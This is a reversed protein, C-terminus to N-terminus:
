RVVRKSRMMQGISKFTNGVLTVTQNQHFKGEKQLELLNDNLYARFYAPDDSNITVLIAKKLM